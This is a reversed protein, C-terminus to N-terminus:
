IEKFATEIEKEIKNLDDHTKITHETAPEKRNKRIAITLSDKNPYIDLFYRFTLSKAYVIRHPRIEEVINNGLQLVFKRLNLLIKKMTDDLHILHSDFSISPKDTYLGFKNM